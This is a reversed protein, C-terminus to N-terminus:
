NGAFNYINMHRSIKDRYSLCVAWGSPYLEYRFRTESEAGLFSQIEKKFKTASVLPNCKIESDEEISRSKEDIDVRSTCFTKRFYGVLIVARANLIVIHCVCSM